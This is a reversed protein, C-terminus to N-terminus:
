LSPKATVKGTVTVDVRGQPPPSGSAVVVTTRAILYFPTGFQHVHDSFAAQGGPDLVVDGSTNTMAPTVPVTGFEVAAPDDASAGIFLHIPPLPLNLTSAITYRIQSVTVDILSQGNLKMLQPVEAKLDVQQSVSVPFELACVGAECVLPTAVCDAPPLGPPACCDTVAQGAGCPVAPFSAPPAKWMADSTDFGFTKSPLQFDVSTIDSNILGCGSAGTLAVSGALALALAGAHRVAVFTSPVGTIRPIFRM